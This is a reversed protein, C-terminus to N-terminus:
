RRCGVRGKFSRFLPTWDPMGLCFGATQGNVEGILMHHPDLMPKMPDLFEHFEDSSLPHFEWEDEFTENFVVRLTKRSATGVSRTSPASSWARRRRPVGSPRRTNGRRSTWRTIGFPNGARGPGLWCDPAILVLVDTDHSAPTRTLHELGLHIYAQRKASRCGLM